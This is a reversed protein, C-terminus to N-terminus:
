RVRRRLALVLLGVATINLLFEIGPAAKSTGDTPTFEDSTTPGETPTGTAKTVEVKLDVTANTGEGGTVKAKFPFTGPTAGAPITLKLLSKATGNDAALPGNLPSFAVSYGNPLGETGLTFNTAIGLNSVTLNYIVSSGAPGKQVKATAGLGLREVGAVVPGGPLGPGSLSSEPGGTVVFVNGAGGPPPPNQSFINIAVTVITGAAVETGGAGVIPVTAQFPTGASCAVPPIYIVYGDGENEIIEEGVYVDADVELVATAATCGILINAALDGTITFPATATYTFFTNCSYATTSISTFAQGATPPTPSLDYTPVIVCVNDVPDEHPPQQSSQVTSGFYLVGNAVQAAAPGPVVLVSATLVMAFLLARLRM